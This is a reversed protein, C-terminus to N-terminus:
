QEVLRQRRQIQFKPLVHTSLKPRNLLAGSDGEDIDGMILAFGQGHRNPDGHHTLAHDTITPMAIDTGAINASVNKVVEGLISLDLVKRTVGLENCLREAYELEVRQKQGYDYGLSIVNEAGYHHTCMIVATASDMGGSHTVIVKKDTHPLRRIIEELKDVQAIRRKMYNEHSETQM